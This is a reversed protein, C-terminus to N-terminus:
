REDEAQARAAETLQLEIALNETLAIIEFRGALLAARESAPLRYRFGAMGETVPLEPRDIRPQFHTQYNGDKLVVIQDVATAPGLTAQAPGVVQQTAWGVVVLHRNSTRLRDIAGNLTLTPTSSDSGSSRDPDTGLIPVVRGDTVALARGGSPLETTGQYLPSLRVARGHSWAIATIRYRRIEDIRSGDIVADFGSLLVDEGGHNDAVWRRDSHPRAVFLLDGRLFLFVRDAPQRRERDIAWGRVVLNKDNQDKTKLTLARPDISPKRRSPPANAGTDLRTSELFGLLGARSPREVQVRAGEFEFTASNSTPDEILQAWPTSLVTPELSWAPEGRNGPTPRVWQITLDNFGPRLPEDPLLRSFRYVPAGAAGLGAPYAWVTDSIRGNRGIAIGVREDVAASRPLEIEGVLYRLLSPQGPEGESNEVGAFLTVVARSDPTGRSAWGARASPTPQAFLEPFAQPNRRDDGIGPTSWPTLKRQHLSDDLPGPGSEIFKFELAAPTRQVETPVFSGDDSPEYLPSGETPWLQEAGLLSAITPLLDLTSVRRPDRVPSSQRPLKILMPVAAIDSDSDAGPSLFRRSHKPRVTIGHDATVIILSRDFLDLEELRDLFEGILSDLYEV